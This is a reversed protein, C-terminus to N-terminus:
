PPVEIAVRPDEIWTGKCAPCKGPKRLKDRGFVFGCKRCVAPSVSVRLESHRLSRFLHRLDEEVEIPSAETCRAIEEISMPHLSLMRLLDRRYVM